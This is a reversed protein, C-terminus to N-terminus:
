IRKILIYNKGSNHTTYLEVRDNFLSRLFHTQSTMLYGLFYKKKDENNSQGIRDRM